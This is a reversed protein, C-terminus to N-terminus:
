KKFVGLNVYKQPTNNDIPPVDTEGMAHREILELVAPPNKALERSLTFLMNKSNCKGTESETYCIVTLKNVPGHTLFLNELGKASAVADNLKKSVIKCRQKPNYKTGFFKTKWIIIPGENEGDTQFVTTPTGSDDAVCVFSGSSEKTPEGTPEDAQANAALPMSVLLALTGLLVRNALNLKM